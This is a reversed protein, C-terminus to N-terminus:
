QLEKSVENDSSGRCKSVKSDILHQLTKHDFAGKRLYGNFPYRQGIAQVDPSASMAIIPTNVNPGKCHRMDSVLQVGSKNPMELDILVLDYAQAILLNAGEAASPATDTPYGLAITLRSLSDLLEPLDDVILLRPRNEDNPLPAEDEERYIEAPIHVRFTTGKGVTSEVEIKGAMLDCLTKVITLGIGSRGHKESSARQRFPSYIKSLFDTTLGPGTDAVSFTLSGADYKELKVVVVGITTYKIANSVLNTIIQNIRSFDAVLFIPDHPVNVELDLGKGKAAARHEEAINQILERAEFPRPCLQLTGSEGCALMLLDELFREMTTAARRLVKIEAPANSGMQISMLDITQVINQLPSRLDHSTASLFDSKQTIAQGKQTLAEKMATVAEEEARRAQLLVTWYRHAFLATGSLLCVFLLAVMLVKVREANWNALVTELPMAASLFIGDFLTKKTAILSPIGLALDVGFRPKGDAQDLLIPRKPLIPGSASPAALALLDGDQRLLAISILNADTSADLLGSLLDVSVEAVALAKQGDPLVLPRGFFIVKERSDGDIIQQSASMATRGLAQEIFGNPLKLGPRRESGLAALLVKGDPRIIAIDLISFSYQRIDGLMKEARNTDLSGDLRQATKMGQAVQGYLLIDYGLLLRNMEVFQSKV